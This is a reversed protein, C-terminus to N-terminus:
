DCKFDLEENPHDKWLTVTKEINMLSCSKCGGGSQRCKQNEKIKVEMKSFASKAFLSSAINLNRREAVILRVNGGLLQNIENQCDSLIDKIKKNMHRDHNITFILQKEGEETSPATIPSLIKSRDLQLAKVKANEIEDERYGSDLLKKSIYAISNDREAPDSCLVVARRFQSFPISRFTHLGHDSRRHLYRSADTPKTYLKTNFLGHKTLQVTVDLFDVSTGVEGTFTIGVDDGVENLATLFLAFERKTGMWGFWLDDLFRSRDQMKNLAKIQQNPLLITELVFYVVINAISGSEPGGTPIGVKTRYWTGRYCVVSNKICLEAMDVIMDIQESTYNTYFVLAHILAKLAIDLRISPYLANVDLTGVLNMKRSNGAEEISKLKQLFSTSDKVLENKCYRQVVPKLLNDLFVGLRYTPGGVGSTVMRTPPIVRSEIEHAKLKHIKFLPYM